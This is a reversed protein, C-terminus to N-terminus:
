SSDSWDAGSSWLSALVDVQGAGGQFHVDLEVGAQSEFVTDFVAFFKNLFSDDPALSTRPLGDVIRPTAAGCTSGNPFFWIEFDPFLM